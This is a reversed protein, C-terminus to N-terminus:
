MAAVVREHSDPSGLIVVKASVKQFYHSMPPSRYINLLFDQKRLECDALIEM